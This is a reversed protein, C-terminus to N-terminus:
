DGSKYGPTQAFTSPRPQVKIKADQSAQRTSEVESPLILGYADLLYPVSYDWALQAKIRRRGFVGLAVRARADDMLGALARAFSREDNPPVYIAAHQATFRHEPLDFVVIPKGLSMYEMIKFMTCHDSYSNSPASDVCIDAASLYQRLDEGFVFGTFQVCDELGLQLAQAKLKEWAAGGGILVCHFDTRGLEYVLHHLSRLLYDVGDQIGMVGVYGIITKGM